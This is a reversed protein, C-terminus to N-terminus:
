GIGCEEIVVEKQGFLREAVIGRRRCEAIVRDSETIPRSTPTYKISMVYNLWPEQGMAYVYVEGCRFEDVIAIAQNFNSGNLRRSEDIGREIRRSLLPGYLWSMPAGDCEMGLFMADVNGLMRSLHKYLRPEVNCSDAAFLFRRSGLRVSYALKSTIALDCHEGLFPLGVISGGPIDLTEFESLTTISNFGLQRFILTLSPDQLMGMANPPVVLHKIKHRLQILTELLVHDQHGHTLLVFDITEPLDLYTYRPIASDYRYSLVPDTLITVDRTEILVCAHGFYRWRVGSGNYPTYAPPADPTFFTRFLSQSRPEVGLAEGIEQVDAATSKMRFLSDLRKDRLPVRLHVHHEDELRPTSFAFARNDGATLSLMVSQSSEEYYPSAYFLPEILRYVPNNRLDYVVEVYGRLADPIRGYIPEVSLGSALKLVDDMEAIANSLALLPQRAARTRELLAKIEAVRPEPYDIFPGGLLRPNKVAQSHLEPAAIYSEMIKLYRNSLNRAATAPPILHSWAYWQDVLPEVQINAMLFNKKGTM